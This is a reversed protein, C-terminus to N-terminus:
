LCESSSAYIHTLLNFSFSVIKPFDPSLFSLFLEGAESKKRMEIERLKQLTTTRQRPPFHFSSPSRRWCEHGAQHFFYVQCILSSVRVRKKDKFLHSRGAKPRRYRKWERIWKPGWWWRKSAVRSRPIKRKKELIKKKNEDSLCVNQFRVVSLLM